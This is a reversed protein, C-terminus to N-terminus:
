LTINQLVFFCVKTRITTLFFSINTSSSDNTVMEAIPLLLDYKSNRAVPLVLTHHLLRSDKILATIAGTADIFLRVAKEEMANKLIELQETSCLILTFKSIIELNIVTKLQGTEARLYLDVVDNKHLDKSARMESKGHYLVELSPKNQFVTFYRLTCYLVIFYSFYMVHEHVM